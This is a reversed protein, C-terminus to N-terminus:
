ENPKLKYKKILFYKVFFIISMLCLLSLVYFGLGAIRIM